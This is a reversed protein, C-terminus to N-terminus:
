SILVLLIYRCTPCTNHEVLWPKICEVHFFHKCELQTVAEKEVNFGDLCIPCVTSPDGTFTEIQFYSAFLAHNMQLMLINNFQLALFVKPLNDIVSKATPRNTSLRQGISSFLLQVVTFSNTLINGVNRTHVSCSDCIYRCLTEM